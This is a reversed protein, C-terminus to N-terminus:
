HSEIGAHELTEMLDRLNAYDELSAPVLGTSTNKIPQLLRQVLGQGQIGQMLGTLQEILAPDLNARTVFVHESIAPTVQISRVGRSRYKAYVEEKVAGADADGALVTLAVNTHGNYHTYSQLDGLGIGAQIMMAQPVLSSMTSNPDGFAFVRGKLDSLGNM